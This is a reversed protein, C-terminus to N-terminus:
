EAPSGDRFRSVILRGGRLMVARPTRGEASFGKVPPDAYEVAPEVGAKQLEGLAERLPLGSVDEM